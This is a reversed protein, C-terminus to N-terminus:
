IKELESLVTSTRLHYIAGGNGVGSIFFDKGFGEKLKTKKMAAVLTRSLNIATLNECQENGKISKIFFRPNIVLYDQGTKDGELQKIVSQLWDYYPRTRDELYKEYVAIPSTM